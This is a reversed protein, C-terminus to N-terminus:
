EEEGGEQVEKEGNEDAQSAANDVAGQATTYNLTMYHARSWEENLERLGAKLRVEDISLFGSGILKDINGALDFIDIHKICTTDAEVAHGNIIQNESYFASTYAESLMHAIPDICDTLMMTYADKIGAVDGRVLGVPVKYAQCVRALAEDFLTKIDTIENSYKKTSESTNSEYKYGNFLPLVHNGRSFFKKFRQNIITELVDDFDKRNREQQDITLIGKEEGSRAYKDTAVQILNNYSDVVSRIIRQVDNDGYELYVVEEAKFRDKFTYDGKTVKTFVNGKIAKREINFNDAIILQDNVQVILVSGLLLKKTLQRIFETSTQNKNPRVNLKVWTHGKKEESNSSYTKFEINSAITAILDTVVHIAYAYVFMRNAETEEEVTMELFNEAQADSKKFTWNRGFLKM